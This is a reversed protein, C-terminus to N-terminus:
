ISLYPKVFKHKGKDGYLSITYLTSTIDEFILFTQCESKQYVLLCSKVRYPYSDIQIKLPRPILTSTNLHNM